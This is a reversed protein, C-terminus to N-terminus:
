IKRLVTMITKRGKPTLRVKIYGACEAELLLEFLGATKKRHWGYKEHAFRALLEMIRLRDKAKAILVKQLGQYKSKM